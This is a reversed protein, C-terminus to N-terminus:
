FLVSIDCYEAIFSYGDCYQGNSYKKNAWEQKDEFCKKIVPLKFIEEKFNNKNYFIVDKNDTVLSFDYDNKFKNLKNIVEKMSNDFLTGDDDLFYYEWEYKNGNKSNNFLIYDTQCVEMLHNIFQCFDANNMTSLLKVFQEFSIKEFSVNM